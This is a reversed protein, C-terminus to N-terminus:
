VSTQSLKFDQLLNNFPEIDLIKDKSKWKRNWFQFSMKANFKQTVFKYIDKEFFRNHIFSQNMLARTFAVLETNTKSWDGATSLCYDAKETKLYEILPNIIEPNIFLNNFDPNFDKKQDNLIYFGPVESFQNDPALELNSEDNSYNELFRNIYNIENELKGDTGSGFEAFYDYV